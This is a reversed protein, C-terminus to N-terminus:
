ILAEGFAEVDFGLEELLGRRRGERVREREKRAKVLVRVHEVNARVYGAPDEDEKDLDIEGLLVVNEGRVLFYGHAVDAFLGPAPASADSSPPVFIREITSQLM